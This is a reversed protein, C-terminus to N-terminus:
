RLRVTVKQTLVSEVSRKRTPRKRPQRGSALADGYRKFDPALAALIGREDDALEEFNRGALRRARLPALLARVVITQAAM